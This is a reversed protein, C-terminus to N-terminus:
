DVEDLEVYQMMSTLFPNIIKIYKSDLLKHKDEDDIRVTIDNIKYKLLILNALYINTDDSDTAILVTKAHKIDGDELVNLKTADGVIFSGPFNDGLKYISKQNKDIVTVYHGSKAFKLAVRAGFRSAGIILHIHGKTTTKKHKYIKKKTHIM